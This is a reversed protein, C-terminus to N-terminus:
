TAIIQQKDIFECFTRADGLAKFLKIRNVTLPGPVNPSDEGSLQTFADRVARDLCDDFRSVQYKEFHRQDKVPQSRDIAPDHMFSNRCLNIQEIQDRTVPSDDWRFSTNEELFKCDRDFWSGSKKLPKGNKSMIFDRLYDQIAKSVLSLSCLGLVELGKMAQQWKEEEVPRIEDSVSLPNHKQVLTRFAPEATLYFSKIFRLQNNLAALSCM